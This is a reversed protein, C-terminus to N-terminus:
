SGGIGIVILIDAKEKIREAAAKIREFEDKDYNEPLKVWGLFDNGLGNRNEITNHADTIQAKMAEIEHEDIFSKLYKSNLKIAM